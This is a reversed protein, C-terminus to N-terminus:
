RALLVFAERFKGAHLTGMQNCNGFLAFVIDRSWAVDPTEVGKHGFGDSIGESDLETEGLSIITRRPLIGSCSIIIPQTIIVTTSDYILWWDIILVIMDYLIGVDDGCLLIYVVRACYYDCWTSM